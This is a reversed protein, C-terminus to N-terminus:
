LVPRARVLESADHDLHADSVVAVRRQHAYMEGLNRASVPPTEEGAGAANRRPKPSLANSNSSRQMTASTSFANDTFLSSLQM